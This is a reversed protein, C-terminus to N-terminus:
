NPVQFAERTSLVANPEAMACLVLKVEAGGGCSSYKDGCLM